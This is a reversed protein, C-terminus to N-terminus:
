KQYQLQEAGGLCQICTLQKVLSLAVIWVLVSLFRQKLLDILM